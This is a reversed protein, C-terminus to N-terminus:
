EALGIYTDCLVLLNEGFPGTHSKGYIDVLRYANASEPQVYPGKRAKLNAERDAESLSKLDPYLDLTETADLGDARFISEAHSGLLDRGMVAEALKMAGCYPVGTPDNADSPPYGEFELERLELAASISHLQARQKVQYAYHRHPRPHIMLAAVLLVVALIFLIEGVSGRCCSFSTQRM